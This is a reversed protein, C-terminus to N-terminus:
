RKNHVTCFGKVSNIIKKALPISILAILSSSIFIVVINGYQNLTLGNMIKIVFIIAVILGAFIWYLINVKYLDTYKPLKM